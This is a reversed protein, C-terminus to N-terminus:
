VGYELYNSVSIIKSMDTWDERSFTELVRNVKSPDRLLTKVAKVNGMARLREMLNKLFAKDYGFHRLSDNIAQNGLVSALDRDFATQEEKYGPFYQEWFDGEDEDSSKDHSANMQTRLFFPGFEPMLDLLQYANQSSPEDIFKHLANEADEDIIVNQQGGVSEEIQEVRLKIMARAMNLDADALITNWDRGADEDPSSCTEIDGVLNDTKRTLGRKEYDSLVEALASGFDVGDDGLHSLREALEDHLQLRERSSISDAYIIKSCAICNAGDRLPDGEIVVTSQKSFLGEKATSVM